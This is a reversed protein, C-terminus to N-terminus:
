MMLAITKPKSDQNDVTKAGKQNDIIVKKIIQCQNGEKNIM